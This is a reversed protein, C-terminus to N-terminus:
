PRAEAAAAVRAASGRGAKAASDSDFFFVRVIGTAESLVKWFFAIRFSNMWRQSLARFSTTM